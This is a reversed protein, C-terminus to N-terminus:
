AKLMYYVAPIVIAQYMVLTTMFNNSNVFHALLLAVIIKYEETKKDPNVMFVPVLDRYALNVLLCEVFLYLFVVMKDDSRERM